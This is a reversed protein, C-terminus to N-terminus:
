EISDAHIQELLEEGQLTMVYKQKPSNPKDPHTMALLGADLLPKLITQGVKVRNSRKLIGLLLALSLPTKCSEL